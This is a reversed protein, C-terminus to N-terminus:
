PMSPEGRNNVMPARVCATAGGETKCHYMAWERTADRLPGDSVAEVYVWADASQSIVEVRSQYTSRCAGTVVLALTVFTLRM